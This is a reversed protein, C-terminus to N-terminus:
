FVWEAAEEAIRVLQAPAHRSNASCICPAWFTAQASLAILSATSMVTAPIM